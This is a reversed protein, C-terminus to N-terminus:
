KKIFEKIKQGISELDLGYNKELQKIDGHEIFKDPWGINLLKIPQTGDLYSAVISGMGGYISNDELTIVHKSKGIWQLMLEKNFPKLIRYNLVTANIKEEGLLKACNYAREVMRGSAIICVDRGEKLCEIPEDVKYNQSIESLDLVEGRPYSITCPGGLKLAYDMMAKLENKDKPIMITLNPMHSLYSLGFIGNHTEGDEGVIGSRDIGLTIPLKQLCIDILLQDYARQLFTSYIAIFPRLGNIALGASYSLAHQEAIGVDFFRDPYTQAFYGLGTGEEMAATIAVIRKDEEAMEILKSGFVASYSECKRKDTNKGTELDFPPVGHFKDPENEALPYGKGKKTIAHILVPVKAKKASQMVSLLEHIDHGDVPGIYKFGFQEFIVGSLILYKVLDKAKGMGAYVGNGVLPIGTIAKKVKKKLETYFPATRLKALHSSIGGINKSISMENDNLLVIFNTKLDCVNNLAEYAIGGTLAGDGIVSVVSYHENKLDRAKAMGLAASISNSSHGSDFFDYESEDRKPFGSLGKFQRLTDFRDKRGTLIKHIYSQHGVDWIIKDEPLNFVKHLALTIEVVGLNSAIHGGSHSVKDLLFERIEEALKNLEEDSLEKLDKPSNIQDLYKKM